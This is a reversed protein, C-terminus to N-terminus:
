NSVTIGNRIDKLHSEFLERLTKQEFDNATAVKTTGTRKLAEFLENGLVAKRKEWDSPHQQAAKLAKLWDDSLRGPSGNTGGGHKERLTVWGNQMSNEAAEVFSEPGMRAIVNWFSQEQPSNPEPIKDLKDKSALHRFWNQVTTLVAKTHMKEPIAIEAGPSYIPNPIPISPKGSETVKENRLGDSIREPIREKNTGNNMGSESHIPEIPADTIDQMAEPITVWYRGVQRHGERQYVLWGADIARQRAENLQKPSKWGMTTMLQENWFRVPGSYRSADETHAIFCLLLCAGQGIDMAACSKCLVRVFKHAYFPEREPYNM